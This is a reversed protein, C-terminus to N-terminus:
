GQLSVVPPTLTVARSGGSTQVSPPMVPTAVGSAQSWERVAQGLLIAVRQPDRLARLAPRPRALNFGYVNPWLHFWSLGPDDSLELVIDSRRGGRAVLDAQRLQAFPLNVTLPLAVGFRIVVRRSTLSYVTSRAYAWGIITLLGLCGLAWPVLVAMSTFVATLSGNSQLEVLGRLGIFVAFYVALVGLQFTAVTYAWWRPTGQWLLQEGPPLDGPLGPIPEVEADRTSTM